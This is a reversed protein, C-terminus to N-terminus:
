PETDHPDMGLQKMKRYLNSRPVRLYQAALSVNQGAAQIHRHIYRRQFQATAEALSLSQDIAEDSDGSAKPSRVFDIENEDFVDKPVLYVLREVLNRLERVNGPWHHALLRRQAAATWVPKSRGVKQCYIDLFFDALTLVDSGRERLPPLQLMVVTLRFYLDERFRKKQVLDVLNQNTAAIVRV